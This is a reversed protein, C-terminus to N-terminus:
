NFGDGVVDHLIVAGQRKLQDLQEAVIREGDRGLKLPEVKKFVRITKFACYAIVVASIATSIWPNRPTKQLTGLWDNLTLIVAIASIWVYATFREDILRDIEDQISQGPLRLPREKLPSRKENKKRWMSRDQSHHANS